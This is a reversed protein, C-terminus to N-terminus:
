TTCGTVQDAGAESPNFPASLALVVRALGPTTLFVGPLSTLLSHPCPPPPPMGVYNTQVARGDCVTGGFKGWLLPVQGPRVLGGCAKRVTASGPPGIWAPFNIAEQISMSSM